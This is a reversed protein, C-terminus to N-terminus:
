FFSYNFVVLAVFFSALQVPLMVSLVQLARSERLLSRFSVARRIEQEREQIDHIGLAADLRDYIAPYIIRLLSAILTVHNPLLLREMYLAVYAAPAISSLGRWLSVFIGLVTLCAFLLPGSKKQSVGYGLLLIDATIFFGTIQVISGLLQRALEMAQQMQLRLAENSAAEADAM